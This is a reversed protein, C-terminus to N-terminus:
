KEANENGSSEHRVSSVEACCSTYRGARQGASQMRRIVADYQGHHPKTLYRGETQKSRSDTPTNVPTDSAIPTESLVSRIDQDTPKPSHQDVPAHACQWCIWQEKQERSNMAAFPSTAAPEKM